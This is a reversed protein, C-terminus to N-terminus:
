PHLEIQHCTDPLTGITDIWTKQVVKPVPLAHPVGKKDVQPLVSSHNYGPSGKLKSSIRGGPHYIRLGWVPLFTFTQMIYHISPYLRIREERITLIGPYRDSQISNLYDVVALRYMEPRDISM